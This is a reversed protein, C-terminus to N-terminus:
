HVHLGKWIVAAEATLLLGMLAYYGASTAVPWVDCAFMGYAGAGMASVLFGALTMRRKDRTMMLAVFLLAFVFGYQWASMKNIGAAADPSILELVGLRGVALVGTFAIVVRRAVPGRQTDEITDWIIRTLAWGGDKM